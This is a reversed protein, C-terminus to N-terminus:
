KGIALWCVLVINVVMLVVVMKKLVQAFGQVQRLTDSDARNREENVFKMHSTDAEIALLRQLRDKDARLALVEKRLSCIVEKYEQHNIEPDHWGTMKAGIFGEVLTKPRGRTCDNPWCGVIAICLHNM